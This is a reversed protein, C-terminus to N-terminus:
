EFDVFEVVIGDNNADGVGDGGSANRGGRGNPSEPNAEVPNSPYDGLVDAKSLTKHETFNLSIDTQVPNGDAHYTSNGIPNYNASINNCYALKIKTGVSRYIGTELDLVMPTIKFLNPYKYALTVGGLPVDDPYSHKRFFHIIKQIEVSDTANNPIMNFLFQFTRLNVGKFAARINPNMVNQTALEVAAGAGGPVKQAIRAAAVEGLEGGVFMSALDSIGQFGEGVAALAASAGSAGSRLGSLATAGMAGLEANSYNFGDVMQLSVPLYLEVSEGTSIFPERTTSSVIDKSLDLEGRSSKDVTSKFAEVSEFGKLKFPITEYAEFKIKSRYLDSRDITSPYKAIVAM